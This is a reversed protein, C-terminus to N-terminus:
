AALMEMKSPREINDMASELTNIAASKTTCQRIEGEIQHCRICTSFKDESVSASDFAPHLRTLIIVEALNEMPSRTIYCYLVFDPGLDEQL